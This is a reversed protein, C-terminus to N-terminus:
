GLAGTASHGQDRCPLSVLLSLLGIEKASWARSRWPERSRHLGLSRAHEVLHQPDEVGLERWSALM